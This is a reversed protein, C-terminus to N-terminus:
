LSLAHFQVDEHGLDEARHHQDEEAVADDRADQERLRLGVGGAPDDDGPCPGHGDEDADDDGAAHAAAKREPVRVQVRGHGDAQEQVLSEVDARPFDDRRDDVDRTLEDAREKAREEHEEVVVRV